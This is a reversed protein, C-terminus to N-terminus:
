ISVANTHKSPTKRVSGAVRNRGAKRLKCSALPQLSSRSELQRTTDTSAREIQQHTDTKIYLMYLAHM